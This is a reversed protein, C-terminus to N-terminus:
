VRAASCGRPATTTQQATAQLVLSLRHCQWRECPSNLAERVARSLEQSAQSRMALVHPGSHLVIEEEGVKRDVAEKGAVRKGQAYGAFFRYISLHALFLDNQVGPWVNEGHPTLGALFKRAGNALRQIRRAFPPLAM